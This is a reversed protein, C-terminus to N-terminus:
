NEWTLAFLKALQEDDEDDFDDLPPQEAQEEEDMWVYADAVDEQITDWKSVSNTQYSYAYSMENKKRENALLIFTDSLASLKLVVRV